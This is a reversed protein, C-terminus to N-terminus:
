YGMRKILGHRRGAPARRKLMPAQKEMLDDAMKPFPGADGDVRLSMLAAVRFILVLELGSYLSITETGAGATSITATEHFLIKYTGDFSNSPGFVINAGEERYTWIGVAHMDPDTPNAAEVPRYIGDLMLRDVRYIRDYLPFAGVINYTPTTTIVQTTTTVFRADSLEERQWRLLNNYELEIFGLAQPRTVKSPSTGPTAVELRTLVRARLEIDAATLAM